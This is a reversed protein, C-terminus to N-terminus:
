RVRSRVSRAHHRAGAARRSLARHGRGGRAFAGPQLPFRGRRGAAPQQPLDLAQRGLHALVSGVGSYLVAAWFMYGPITIEFGGIPLTVSGSLRWLITAFSALTVVSSLLGLGLSLTQAIFQKIDESIRQDPNDVNGSFRMRYFTRDALWRTLFQDTMWRRWRIQLTQNLFFRLLAVALYVLILEVITGFAGFFDGSNKEQLANYIAGNATNLLVNVYVMGLNLGIIAALLVWASWKEESGWYGRALVWVNRGLRAFRKM